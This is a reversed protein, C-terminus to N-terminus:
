KEWKFINKKNRCSPEVLVYIYCINNYFFFSFCINGTAISILLTNSRSSAVLQAHFWVKMNCETGICNPLIVLRFWFAPLDREPFHEPFVSIKNFKMRLYKLQRFCLSNYPYTKKKGFSFHNYTIWVYYSRKKRLWAM